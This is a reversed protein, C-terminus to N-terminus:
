AEPSAGPALGISMQWQTLETREFGLKHFFGGIEEPWIASVRWERGPHLAIVDRLLASAVGRRRADPRTVLARVTVTTATPDSLAVWATDDGYAVGPAGTQALTEGSLQWPLDRPGWASLASAVERVDVEQPARASSGVEPRGAFGVLRRDTVFGCRQYLRVARANQEIVELTMGREGRAAAEALLRRVVREGIGRARAEPVLAMGALRSTWGRRAILAVGVPEKEDSVIRSAALDVSDQRVMGLLGAANMRIPVLYDAFGRSLLEAAPDLGFELVPRFALPM